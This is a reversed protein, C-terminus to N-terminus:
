PNIMPRPPTETLQVRSRLHTIPALEPVTTVLSKRGRAPAAIPCGVIAYGRRNKSRLARDRVPEAGTCANSSQERVPRITRDRHESSATRLGVITM